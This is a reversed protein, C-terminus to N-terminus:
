VGSLLDLFTEKIKEYQTFIGSDVSGSSSDVVCSGQSLARDEKIELSDVNESLALIQDKIGLAYSYDESSVRLVLNEKSICNELGRQIATEIVTLDEEVRKDLILKVTDLVLDVMESEANGLMNEYTEEARKKIDLAEQIFIEAEQKGAELGESHGQEYGEQKAKEYIGKSKEYADEIVMDAEQRAERRIASAEQAAEDIIAQIDEDTMKPKQTDLKPTDVEELSPLKKSEPVIEPALCFKKDDLIVHTNKVIRSLSKMEEM